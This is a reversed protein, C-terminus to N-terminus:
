KKGKKKNSPNKVREMNETELETTELEKGEEIEFYAWVVMMQSNESCLSCLIFNICTKTLNNSLVCM